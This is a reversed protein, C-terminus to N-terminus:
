LLSPDDVSLLMRGEGEGLVCIRVCMSLFLTMGCVAVCCLVFLGLIDRTLFAKNKLVSKM